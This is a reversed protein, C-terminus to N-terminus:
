TLPLQTAMSRSNFTNNKEALLVNLVYTQQVTAVDTKLLRIVVTYNKFLM